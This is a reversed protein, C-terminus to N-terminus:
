ALFYYWHLLMPYELANIGKNVFSFVNKLTKVLLRGGFSDKFFCLVSGLSLGSKRSCIEVVICSSSVASM